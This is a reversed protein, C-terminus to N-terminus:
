IFVGPEGQIFISFAVFIMVALLIMRRICFGITGYSNYSTVKGMFEDNGDFRRSQWHQKRRRASPSTVTAPAAAWVNVRTM